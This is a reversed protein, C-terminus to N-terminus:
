AEGEALWGKVKAMMNAKVRELQSEEGAVHWLQLIRRRIWRSSLEDALANKEQIQSLTHARWRHLPTVTLVRRRMGVVEERNRERLARFVEFGFKCLETDLFGQAKNDKAALAVRRAHVQSERYVAWAQVALNLLERKRFDFAAFNKQRRNLASQWLHALVRRYRTHMWFENAMEVQLRRLKVEEAKRAMKEQEERKKQLRQRKEELKREEEALEEQRQREQEAQQKELARQAKQEEIVRRREKREAARKEM